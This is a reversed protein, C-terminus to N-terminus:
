DVMYDEIQGHHSRIDQQMTIITWTIQILLYQHQSKIEKCKLNLKSQRDCSIMNAGTPNRIMVTIINRYFYNLTEYVREALEDVMGSMVPQLAKELDKMNRITM